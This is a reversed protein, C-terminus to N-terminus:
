LRSQPEPKRGLLCWPTASRTGPRGPARGSRVRRRRAAVRRRSARRREAPEVLRVEVLDAIGLRLGPDGLVLHGEAHLRRHGFQGVMESSGCARGRCTRGRRSWARCRRRWSGAPGGAPRARRASRGSRGGRSPGARCGRRAVQGLLAAVDVLGGPGEIWSRLCRPSSSSVSTMQPPSNPRM